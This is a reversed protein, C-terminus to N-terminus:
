GRRTPRPVPARSGGPTWAISVGFADDLLDGTGVSAALRVAFSRSFEFSGGLDLAFGIDTESDDVIVGRRVTFCDTCYDISIRPHVWPTIAMMGELPFRRGISVGVPVRILNTPDSFAANAGVTLLFDFPMSANATALQQAFQGGVFLVEDDDRFNGFADDVFGVDLSLQSRASRGERWQFLLSTGDGDALGFNLERGTVQATQFAPYSWAQARASSAPLLALVSLAALGLGRASRPCRLHHM